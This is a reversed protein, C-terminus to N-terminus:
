RVSTRRTIHDAWATRSSFISWVWRPVRLVYCHLPNANSCVKCLLSPTIITIVQGIFQMLQGMDEPRRSYIHDKLYDCLFFCPYTLDPSKLPLLPHNLFRNKLSSPVFLCWLLFNSHDDYNPIFHICFAFHLLTCVCVCVCVCMCVYVCLVCVCM